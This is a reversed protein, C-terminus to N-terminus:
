HGASKQRSMLAARSPPSVRSGSTIGLLQWASAYGSPERTPECTSGTPVSPSWIMPTESPQSDVM